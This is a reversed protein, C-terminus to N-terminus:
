FPISDDDDAGAVSPAAAPAPAPRVPALKPKDTYFIAVKNKKEVKNTKKSQYEEIILKAWGRLGIPDVHTVGNEDADLKNFEFGAGKPLVIGMCKVFCDIKWSTLDHDILGEWVRGGEPREITLEAEYLDAGATKGGKSISREFGTVRLIYDGEPAVTFTKAESDNFRPM